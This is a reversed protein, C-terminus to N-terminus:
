STLKDLKKITMDTLSYETTYHKATQILMQSKIDYAKLIDKVINVNYKARGVRAIWRMYAKPKRRRVSNDVSSVTPRKSKTQGMEVWLKSYEAEYVTSYWMKYREELLELEYELKRYISSWYAYLGPMTEVHDMVSENDFYVEEYLDAVIDGYKESKLTIEIGKRRDKLLEKIDM